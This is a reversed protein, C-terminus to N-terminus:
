EVPILDEPFVRCQELDIRGDPLFPVDERELLARQEIGLSPDRRTIPMDGLRNVVRWWPVDEPCRAMWRGVLKGSAPTSLARGLDGYTCCKGKPIRRVMTWLEQLIVAV